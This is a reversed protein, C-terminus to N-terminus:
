VKYENKNKRQMSYQNIKERYDINKVFTNTLPVVKSMVKAVALNLTNSNIPKDVSSGSQLILNRREGIQLSSMTINEEVKDTALDGRLHEREEKDKQGLDPEKIAMYTIGAVAAITAIGIGTKIYGNSLLDDMQGKLGSLTNGTKINTSMIKPLTSVEEVQRVASELNEATPMVQLTNLRVSERVYPFQGENGLTNGQGIRRATDRYKQQLAAIVDSSAETSKSYDAVAEQPIGLLDFHSEEFMSGYHNYLEEFYDKLITKSKTPHASQIEHIFGLHNEDIDRFFEQLKMHQAIQRQGAIDANNTLVYEQLHNGRRVEDENSSKMLTSARMKLTEYIDSGQGSARVIEEHLNRQKYLETVINKDTEEGVLNKGTLLARVKDSALQRIKAEQMEAQKIPDVKAAELYDLLSNEGYSAVKFPNSKGTQGYTSEQVVLGFTNDLAGVGYAKQVDETAQTFGGLVTYTRGAKPLYVSKGILTESLNEIAKPDNLVSAIATTSSASSHTIIERLDQSDFTGLHVEQRGLLWQSFDEQNSKYKLESPRNSLPFLFAQMRQFDVTGRSDLSSLSKDAGTKFQRFLNSIIPLDFKLNNGVLFSNGEGVTDRVVESAIHAMEGLSVELGNAMLVHAKLRAQAAYKLQSVNRSSTLGVLTEIHNDIQNLVKATQERSIKSNQPLGLSLVLEDVKTKVGALNSTYDEPALLAPLDQFPDVNHLHEIYEKTYLDTVKNGKVLSFNGVVSKNSGKPTFTEVDLMLGKNSDEVFNKLNKLETRIDGKGSYAIPITDQGKPTIGFLSVEKTYTTGGALSASSIQHPISELQSVPVTFSTQGLGQVHVPRPGSYMTVNGEPSRVVTVDTSVRSTDIGHSFPVHINGWQDTIVGQALRDPEPMEAFNDVLAQIINGANPDSVDLATKVRSIAGIIENETRSVTNLPMEPNTLKYRAREALFGYKKIVTGKSNLQGIRLYDSIYNGVRSAMTEESIISELAGTSRRTKIVKKALEQSIRKFEYFDDVLEGETQLGVANELLSIKETVTKLRELHRLREAETAASSAQNRLIDSKNKLKVYKSLTQKYETTKGELLANVKNELANVEDVMMGEVPENVTIPLGVAEEIVSKTNREAINKMIASKLRDTLPGKTKDMNQPSVKEVMNSLDGLSLGGGEIGLEILAQSFLNTRVAELNINERTPKYGRVITGFREFLSGQLDEGGFLARGRGTLRAGFFEEVNVQKLLEPYDELMQDQLQTVSLRKSKGLRDVVAVNELVPLGTGKNAAIEEATTIKIPEGPVKVPKTNLRLIGGKLGISELTVMSSLPNKPNVTIGQIMYASHNHMVTSKGIFYDPNSVLGLLGGQSGGTSLDLGKAILRDKTAPSINTTLVETIERLNYRKIAGSTRASSTGFVSSVKKGDVPTFLSEISDKQKSLETLYSSQISDHYDHVNYGQSRLSGEMVQEAINLSQKDDFVPFQSILVQTFNRNFRDISTRSTLVFDHIGPAYGIGNRGLHLSGAKHLLDLLKNAEEVKRASSALIGEFANDYVYGLHEPIQISGNDFFSDLTSSAKFIGTFLSDQDLAGTVDRVSSRIKTLTAQAFKRDSLAKSLEKEILARRTPDTTQSLNTKLERVRLNSRKIRAHLDKRKANGSDLATKLYGTFADQSEVETFFNFINDSEAFLTSTTADSGITRRSSVNRAVKSAHEALEAPVGATELRTKVGAARQKIAEKLDAETQKAVPKLEAKTIQKSKAVAEEGSNSSHRAPPPTKYELGFDPGLSSKIFNKSRNKIDLFAKTGINITETNLKSIDASIGWNVNFAKSTNKRAFYVVVLVVASGLGVAKVETVVGKEKTHKDIVADGPAFRYVESQKVNTM